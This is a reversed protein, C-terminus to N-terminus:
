LGLWSATSGRANPRLFITCYKMAVSLPLGYTSTLLQTAFQTCEFHKGAEQCAIQSLVQEAPALLELALRDAKEEARLISGQDLGGNASRLMLDFYTGLRVSSLVADLREVQTPLREGDLVPRTPEGLLELARRRPYLYDILFHATEHAITYRREGETDLGDVFILGHGRVAIICGCLSRDQCLFHFPVQQRQFWSEISLISLHPLPIISLPFGRSIVRELNRPYPIESGVTNWFDEAAQALWGEIM